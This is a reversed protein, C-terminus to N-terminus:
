IKKDLKNIQNDTLKSNNELKKLYNRYWSATFEITEETKLTTKYRLKNKSKNINAM